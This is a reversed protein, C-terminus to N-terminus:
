PKKRSLLITYWQSGAEPDPILLVQEMGETRFSPKTRDHIVRQGRRDGIAIVKFDFDIDEIPLRFLESQDAGREEDPKQWVPMWARGNVYTPENHGEHRGPKTSSVALQKWYVGGPILHLESDGDILAEILISDIAKVGAAARAETLRKRVISQELGSLDPLAMRYWYMARRQALTRPIGSKDIVKWWADAAQVREQPSDPTAQEFRVAEKLSPDKSHSLLKLGDAWDNRFFCMARGVAVNAEPDAPDAALKQRAVQELHEEQQAERVRGAEVHVRNRAETDRAMSAVAEAEGLAKQAVTLRQQAIADACLDLDADLLEEAAQPTRVSRRLSQVAALRTELENVDYDRALQRATKVATRVDAAGAALEMGDKLMVYRAAPDDNTQGAIEVLRKAFADRETPSRAAFDSRFQGRLAHESRELAAAEPVARRPEPETPAQPAALAPGVLLAWFLTIAATRM